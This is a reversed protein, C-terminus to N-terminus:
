SQGLLKEQEGVKCEGTKTEFEEKEKIRGKNLEDKEEGSLKMYLNNNINGIVAKPNNEIIDSRREKNIGYSKVFKSTVDVIEEESGAVIFTINKGM